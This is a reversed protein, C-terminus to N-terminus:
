PCAGLSPPSSHAAGHSRGHSHQQVRAPERGRRARPRRGTTHFPAKRAVLIEVHVRGRHQILGHLVELPHHPARGALVQM